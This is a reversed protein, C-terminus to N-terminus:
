PIDKRHQFLNKSEFSKERIEDVPTLAKEIM